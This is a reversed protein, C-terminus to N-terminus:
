KNGSSISCTDKHWKVPLNESGFYSRLHSIIGKRHVKRELAYESQSNLCPFLITCNIAQPTCDISYITQPTCYIAQPSCYITQPTCYIAQPSCYIAQPSCYITQPTCDIAQPSCYITQPTCYISFMFTHCL